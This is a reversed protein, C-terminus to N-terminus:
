SSCPKPSGTASSWPPMPHDQGVQPTVAAGGVDVPRKAGLRQRVVDGPQDGV